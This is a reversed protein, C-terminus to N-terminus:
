EIGTVTGTTKKTFTITVDTGNEAVQLLAGKSEDIGFSKIFANIENIQDTTINAKTINNNRASSSIKKDRNNSAKEDFLAKIEDASYDTTRLPVEKMAVISATKAKLKLETDPAKETSSVTVDVTLKGAFADDSATALDVKGDTVDINLASESTSVDKQTVVVKGGNSAVTITGIYKADRDNDKAKLNITINENTGYYEENKNTFILNNSVEGSILVDLIKDGTAKIIPTSTNGKNEVKVGNITVTSNAAVTYEKDGKVDVNNQLLIEDANLGSVDFYATDSENNSAAKLIVKAPQNINGSASATAELKRLNMNGEIELTMGKATDAFNLEKGTADAESTLKLQMVEDKVTVTDGVHLKKIVELVAKFESSYDDDTDIKEGNVYVVNDNGNEESNQAFYITKAKGVADNKSAVMTLSTIEPTALKTTVGNSTPILGSEGTIGDIDAILKFEYKTGPKLGDVVIKGDKITVAKTTPTGDKIWTKDNGTTTEEKYAQIQVKYTAKKGNVEMADIAALNAPSLTVSTETIDSTDVTGLDIVYFGKSEVPESGLVALQNTNDVNATVEAKYIKNVEIKSQSPNTKVNKDTANGTLVVDTANRGSNKVKEWVGNASLKYLKVSYDKVSQAANSSDTWSIVYPNTVDDTVEFDINTVPKLASVVIEESKVEESAKTSGDSKGNAVVGISYKGAGNTKIETTFDAKLGSSGVVSKEKIIKGDKYLVVSYTITSGNETSDEAYKWTFTATGAKTLDPATIVVSEETKSATDSAILVPGQVDSSQSGYNNEVVYWIDYVGENVLDTSILAKDLKGNTTNITKTGEAPKGDTMLTPKNTATNNAVTRKLVQYYVKVLNGEGANELSLYGNRGERTTRAKAVVPVVVNKTVKFTAETEEQEDTEPEIVKVTLIGDAFNTLDLDTSEKIVVENTNAPITVNVSEEKKAGNSDVGIIKAIVTKEESYTKELSLKLPNKSQNINNIYQYDGSVKVNFNTEQKEPEKETKVLMVQLAEIRRSWGVSGAIVKNGNADKGTQSNTTRQNIVVTSDDAVTWEKEWGDYGLHVRYRIEYGAAKLKDLGKSVRIKIAEAQKWDKIDKSGFKDDPQVYGAVEGEKMWDSWGITRNHVSYELEVGEIGELNIKFADALKSEQVTGAIPTNTDGTATVAGMWAYKAM